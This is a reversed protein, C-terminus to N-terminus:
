FTLLEPAYLEILGKAYDDRLKVAQAEYEEGSILWRTTVSADVTFSV